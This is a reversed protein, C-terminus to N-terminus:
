TNDEGRLLIRCKRLLMHWDCNQLKREVLYRNFQM